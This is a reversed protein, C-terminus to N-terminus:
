MCVRAGSFACPRWWQGKRHKSSRQGWLCCASVQVFPLPFFYLCWGLVYKRLDVFVFPKCVGKKKADRAKSALERVALSPPWSSLPYHAKLGKAELGGEIDVHMLERKGM